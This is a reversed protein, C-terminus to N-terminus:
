NRDRDRFVDRVGIFRFDSPERFFSRVPKALSIGRYSHPRGSVDIGTAVRGNPMLRIGEEMRGGVRRYPLVRHNRRRRRDKEGAGRALTPGILSSSVTSVTDGPAKMARPNMVALFETDYTDRASNLTLYGEDRDFETDEPVSRRLPVDQYADKTRNVTMRNGDWRIPNKGATHEAHFLWNYTHPGNGNVKDRLLIIDPKVFLITRTYSALSGKYVCTLDGSVDDVAAGAFGATIHPYDRLAAISNEYDAPAQSEANFDVLMVNHGVPQTYYCPYNLNAYYSSGHGCRSFEEGNTM